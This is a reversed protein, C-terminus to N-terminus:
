HTPLRAALEDPIPGDPRLGGALLEGPVELRGDPVLAQWDADIREVRMAYNKGFTREGLVRAGAHRRLLAALVEGSSITLGSVLVTLSGQWAGGGPAPISLEVVQGERILHVAGAVPGTFSAAVALMRRLLGGENHRLDLIVATAGPRLAARLAREVDRGFRDLRVLHRGGGLDVLRGISPRPALRLADASPQHRRQLVTGWPRGAFFPAFSPDIAPVVAGAPEARAAGPHATALLLLLGAACARRGAGGVGGPPRARAWGSAIVRMGVHAGHRWIQVGRREGAPANSADVPRM